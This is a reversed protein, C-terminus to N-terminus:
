DIRIGAVEGALIKDALELYLPGIGVVEIPAAGAAIHLSKALNERKKDAESRIPRFMWNNSQFEETFDGIEVLRMGNHESTARYLCWTRGGDVSVEAETGVPPLGNGDWESKSAALAAEYQKRTVYGEADSVINLDRGKLSSGVWYAFVRWYGNTAIHDAGEPWGGRKPLEQVLIDILKM